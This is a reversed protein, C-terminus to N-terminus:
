TVELYLLLSRNSVHQLATYFFEFFGNKTDIEIYVKSPLNKTLDKYIGINNEMYGYLFKDLLSIKFLSVTQLPLSFGKNLDLLYILNINLRELESKSYTLFFGSIDLFASVGKINFCSIEKNHYLSLLAALYVDTFFHSIVNPTSFILKNINSFIVHLNSGFRYFEYNNVTLIKSTTYSGFRKSNTTNLGYQYFLLTNNDITELGNTKFRLSLISDTLV